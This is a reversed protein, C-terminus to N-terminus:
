RKMELEVARKEAEAKAGRSARVLVFRGSFGDPFRWDGDILTLKEDVTGSYYIPLRHVGPAPHYIKTFRVTLDGRSGSIDASLEILHPSGFTAPELTTGSITGGSDIIHASFPTPRATHGYWYEGSWLGTLDSERSFTSKEPAMGAKGFNEFM